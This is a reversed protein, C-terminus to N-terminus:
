LEGGETGEGTGTEEASAPAPPPSFIAPAPPGDPPGWRGDPPPIALGAEVARMGYTGGPDAVLMRGTDLDAYSVYGRTDTGTYAYAQPM